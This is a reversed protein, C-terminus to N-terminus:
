RPERGFVVTVHSSLVGGIGSALAVAPRPGDARRGQVRRVAETVHYVGGTGFSLMGGHTNVPLAGDLAAAGSEVFAGAQGPACLGHAELGLLVTITFSDYLAALEVDQPSVRAQAYASSAAAAAARPAEIDDRRVLSLACHAEGWGYVWAPSVTTARAVDAAALVLAGSFDTVLCCDLLRLPTSVPKSGAVDAVTIPATATARPTRAANRRQEVAVAALHGETTGFRHMHRRAALAYLVPIYAGFPLEADAHAVDRLAAIAAERGMGSKRNSAAAVVAVSCVGTEIAAAARAVM